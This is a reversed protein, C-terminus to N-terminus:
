RGEEYSTLASAATHAAQATVSEGSLFHYWVFPKGLQAAQQRWGQYDADTYYTGETTKAIVFSAGTLRSLVLGSQYSSIDPGFCTM